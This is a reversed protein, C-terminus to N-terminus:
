EIWLYPSNDNENENGRVMSENKDPEVIINSRAGTVQWYFSGNDGYVTFRNYLIESVSYPKPATGDYIHTIEITFDRAFSEVYEPLIIEISENNTIEGCGRYYVGAELAQLFM